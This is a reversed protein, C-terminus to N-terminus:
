WACRAPSSARGLDRQGHALGEVDGGGPAGARRQDVHRLVHQGALHLPVPRAVVVDGGREGPIARRRLAVLPHDLLRGPQDEGGLPRHEVDAAPDELRAGGLREAVEGLQGVDVDDRRQHCATREGVVMRQTEAHGPHVAVGRGDRRHLAAIQQDGETGAEVIPDGALEVTEGGLRLHDVDVDIRGLLALHAPGVHRDDAVAAVDDGLDGLRDPRQLLAACACASVLAQFLRM